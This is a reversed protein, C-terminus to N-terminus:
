PPHDHTSTNRLSPCKKHYKSYNTLGSTGNSPTNKRRARSFVTALFAPPPPPAYSPTTFGPSLIPAVLDPQLLHSLSVSHTSVVGASTTGHSRCGTASAARLGLISVDMAGLELAVRGSQNPRIYCVACHNLPQFSMLAEIYKELQHLSLTHVPLITYTTSWPLMVALIRLPQRLCLRATKRSLPSSHCATPFNRSSIKAVINYWLSNTEDKRGKQSRPFGDVYYLQEDKSLTSTFRRWWGRGLPFEPRWYVVTSREGVSLDLRGDPPSHHTPVSGSSRSAQSFSPGIMNEFPINLSHPKIDAKGHRVREHCASENPRRWM